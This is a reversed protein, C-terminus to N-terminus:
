EPEELTKGLIFDTNIQQWLCNLTQRNAPSLFFPTEGAIVLVTFYTVKKYKAYRLAERLLETAVQYM